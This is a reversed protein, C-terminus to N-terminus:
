TSVDTRDPSGGQLTRHSRRHDRGCQRFYREALRCSDARSLSVDTRHCRRTVLSFVGRLGRLFDRVVLSKRVKALPIIAIFSLGFRLLADWNLYHAAAATPALLLLINVSSGFLFWRYSDLWSPEGEAKLLRVFKLYFSEAPRLGNVQLLPTHETPPM